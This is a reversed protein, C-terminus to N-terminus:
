ACEDDAEKHIFAAMLATLDDSSVHRSPLHVFRLDIAGFHTAAQTPCGYHEESFHVTELFAGTAGALAGPIVIEAIM